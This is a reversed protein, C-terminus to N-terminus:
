RKIVEIVMRGQRDLVEVTYSGAPLSGMTIAHTRANRPWVGELVMRGNVDFIRTSGALLPESLEIYLQDTTPNPFARVAEIGFNNISNVITNGALPIILEDTTVENLFLTIVLTDEYTTVSQPSFTISIADSGGASLTAGFLDDATFKTGEMLSPLYQLPGNGTNELAITITSDQWALVDGFNIEETGTLMTGAATASLAGTRREATAMLYVKFAEPGDPGFVSLVLSDLMMGEVTPAVNLSVTSFRGEAINDLNAATEVTYTSGLDELNLIAGANPGVGTNLVVIEEDSSEGIFITGLDIIAGNSIVGEGVVSIEFDTRDVDIGYLETGVDARAAYLIKDRLLTLNAPSSGSSGPNIDAVLTPPGDNVLSLKYIEAGFEPTNAEFYLASGTSTLEDVNTHSVGYLDFFSTIVPEGTEDLTLKFLQDRLVSDRGVFYLADEGNLQKLVLFDHPRSDGNLSSGTGPGLNVDLLRTGEATGDSVYLEVGFSDSAGQYFIYDGFATIGAPSTSSGPEPRSDLILRISDGDFTYLENGGQTTSGQFYLQGNLAAFNSPNTVVEPQETIARTGETTGDSVWLGSFARPGFVPHIDVGAYGSFYLLDDIILFNGPSGSNTSDGVEKFFEVSEGDESLRYFEFKPSPRFGPLLTDAASFYLRDKFEVFNRIFSGDTGPNVDALLRTGESTGDSVWLESGLTDTNASFYLKDNFVTINAPSGSSSGELLDKFLETGETTGDTVFLETGLSDSSASFYLKGNLMAFEKPSSSSTGSRIDKILSAQASLGACGFAVFLTFILSRM